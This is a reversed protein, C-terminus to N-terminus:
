PQAPAPTGAAPAAGTAPEAAPEAAAPEPMQELEAQTWPEKRAAFEQREAAVFEPTVEAAANGWESRIYSAVAAIKKDTLVAEWAPMAGVYKTGKVTFEGQAGKLLIAILRRPSGTVWESGALPPYQGPIGQGNAQHCTACNLSYVSKGQQALTLAASEEGEGAGGAAIPQGFGGSEDMVGGRFGGSFMGLYVGGLVLVWGAFVLLWMPLPIEGTQPTSKERAVAAHVQAIDMTERYDAHDDAPHRAATEISEPENM